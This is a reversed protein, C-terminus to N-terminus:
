PKPPEQTEVVMDNWGIQPEDKKAMLDLISTLHILENESLKTIREIVDSMTSM